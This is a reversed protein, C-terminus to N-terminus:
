SESEVTGRQMSAWYLEHGRTLHARMAREARGPDRDCIANFIEEHERCANEVQNAISLTIRRQEYLWEFVADHMALFIPNRPIQALVYHFEVDTREFLSTKGVADKNATLADQLKRLDEPTANLAAERVIGVEFFIRARQFNKLGDPQSIMRQVPGRMAELAVNSTPEIVRPGEGAARAAVSAFAEVRDFAGPRIPASLRGAKFVYVQDAAEYAELIETCYLIVGTGSAAVERLLSYIERKSGIDVGRTPEELLVLRPRKLLAQAIAVKQQNGGSLTTIPQDTDLTKVRFRQVAELAADHMRRRSLTGTRGSIDPHGLRVLANDGVSLNAYLSETRSPAVYAINRETNALGRTGALDITGTTAELGALSRLFDRAGSGEVGLLAIVEGSSISLDIPAFAGGIHALSAIEVLPSGNGAPRLPIRGVDDVKSPELGQVLLHAISEESLMNGSLEAAVQGDRIVVVRHAHQVLDELRHTVLLVINGADALRHLEAFMATSEEADLASNPEDFLFVGARRALARGIEVRQRTALSCDEVQTDRFAALGLSSLLEEDHSGLTPRNLRAGERGVLLNQSVTMNPFLQPEQHVVAVHSSRERASCLRDALLIAGGDVDEEGALVKMLTSKGAGNPGAVGLIEGPVLTLDLGQLARTNGYNKVLGSLTMPPSNAMM